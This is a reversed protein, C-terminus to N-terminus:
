FVRLGAVMGGQMDLTPAEEVEEQQGNPLDFTEVEGGAGEVGSGGLLSSFLEDIQEEHWGQELPVPVTFNQVKEHV